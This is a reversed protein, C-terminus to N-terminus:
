KDAQPLRDYLRCLAALRLAHHDQVQSWQMRWQWWGSSQGPFNMRAEGGLSLVDQMAYIATDAVSACASRILAWAIDDHGCALYDQAFRREAQAAGAWWGLCTDNDHTGPYVVTDCEHHHPLFANSADGGFAFQLIRMGPFRFRRRLAEVDPTIVGLDEAIIPMPGLAANIAKFLDAGPGTRWAGHIATPEAAPIEWYGAFGRFHDIRVIDVLEFTCRLRQVWWAYGDRAHEAWRYLPNGWRQGTASFFDPPVGAVVSPRGDAGLEFLHPQSWVEASHHGIFIPVDGVIMVGRQHAYAKLALWQRYFSWQCFQWFRMRVAHAEAARALASPERRALPAPWGCWDTDPHVEGLAMFLSYDPLWNAHRLCFADFLRHRADDAPLEFFRQAASALRRMRYPVMAAYDVRQDLLGPLPALEADDLWGQQRLEHLDILLPNGAFASAGSYPSDGAGIPSLPLIQWLTQGASVLWDVFHYAAPGCDGSGHPGPLSTPHLLVGSARPFRM